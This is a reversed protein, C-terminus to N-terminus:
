RASPLGIDKNLFCVYVKTYTAVVWESSYGIWDQVYTNELFTRPGQREWTDHHVSDVWQCMVQYWREVELLGQGTEM